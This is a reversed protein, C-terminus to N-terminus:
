RLTTWKETPGRIRFNRLLTFVAALSFRGRAEKVTECILLNAASNSLSLYM